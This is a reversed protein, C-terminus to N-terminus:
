TKKDREKRDWYEREYIERDDEDDFDPDARLAVIIIWISTLMVGLVIGAMIILGIAELARMIAKWNESLRAKKGKDKGHDSRRDAEDKAGQNRAPAESFSEARNFGRLDQGADAPCYESTGEFM